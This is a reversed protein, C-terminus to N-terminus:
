SEIVVLDLTYTRGRGDKYIAQDWNFILLSSTDYTNKFLIINFGLDIGQYSIEREWKDKIKTVYRKNTFERIQLTQGPTYPICIHYERLIM